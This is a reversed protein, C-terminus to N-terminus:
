HDGEQTPTAQTSPGDSIFPLYEKVGSLEFIRQAQASGRTLRLRARGEEERAHKLLVHLGTSDIFSVKFLDVVIGTADAARARELAEDLLPSTVIDLEGHVM